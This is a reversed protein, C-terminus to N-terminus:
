GNEKIAVLKSDKYCFSVPHLENRTAAEVPTSVVEALGLTFVDATGELFALSAKGGRGVGHTYLAYLDCSTAVNETFSSQPAGIRELVQDRPTGLSFQGLDVPTPRTAEM